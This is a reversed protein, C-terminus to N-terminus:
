KNKSKSKNSKNNQPQINVKHEHDWSEAQGESGAIRNQVGTDAWGLVSQGGLDPTAAPLKVHGYTTTGSCPKWKCNNESSCSPSM